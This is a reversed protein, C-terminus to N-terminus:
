SPMLEPPAPSAPGIPSVRMLRIRGGDLHEFRLGSLDITVPLVSHDVLMPQVAKMKATNDFGFSEVVMMAAILLEVPLGRSKDQVVGAWVICGSRDTTLVLALQEGYLNWIHSVGEQIGFPPLQATWGKLRQKRHTDKSNWRGRFDALSTGTCSQQSNADANVSHAVEREAPATAVRATPPPVMTRQARLEIAAEAEAPAASRSSAAPANCGFALAFIGVLSRTM